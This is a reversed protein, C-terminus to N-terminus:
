LVRPHGCLITWHVRLISSKTGLMTIITLVPKSMCTPTNLMCSVQVMTQVMNVVIHLEPQLLESVKRSKSLDDHGEYIHLQSSAIEM